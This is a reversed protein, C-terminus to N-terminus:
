SYPVPQFEVTGSRGEDKLKVYLSYICLFFYCTIISYFIAGGLGGYLSTIVSIFSVIVGIGMLIMILKMRYHDRNKVASILSIGAIFYILYFLIFISGVILFSVGSWFVDINAPFMIATSGLFVLTIGSLIGIFGFFANIWGVIIGGTELSCCFCFKNLTPLGM